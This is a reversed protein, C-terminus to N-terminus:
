GSQPNQPRWSRPLPGLDLFSQRARADLERQCRKRDNAWTEPLFLRLAVPVPVEDRALTLSVVVQCNANKGVQGCYQHAVGVPRDGKKLLGTDDVILHADPGGV